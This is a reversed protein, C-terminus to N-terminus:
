AFGCARRSPIARKSNYGFDFRCMGYGNSGKKNPLEDM